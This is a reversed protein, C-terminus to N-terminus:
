QTKYWKVMEKIGEEVTYPPKFNLRKFTDQPNMELSGYLRIYMEPKLKKLITKFLAPMSFLRIPRGMNKRMESILLTTSIPKDDAALFIGSQKQNIVTNILEILYRKEPPLNEEVQM